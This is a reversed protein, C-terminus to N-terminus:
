RRAQKGQGRAKGQQNPLDPYLRILCAHDRIAHLVGHVGETLDSHLLGHPELLLLQHFLDDGDAAPGGLALHEPGPSFTGDLAGLGPDPPPPGPVLSRPGRPAPLQTM